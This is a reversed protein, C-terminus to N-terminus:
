NDGDVAGGVDDFFEFDGGWACAACGGDEAEAEAVEEGFGLEVLGAVAVVFEILEVKFLAFDLEEVFFAIVDVGEHVGFVVRLKGEVGVFEAVLEVVEDFVHFVDTGEDDVACGDGDLEGGIYNQFDGVAFGGHFALCDCGAGLGGGEM